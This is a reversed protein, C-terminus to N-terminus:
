DVCMGLIIVISGVTFIYVSAAENGAIKCIIASAIWIAGHAILRRKNLM